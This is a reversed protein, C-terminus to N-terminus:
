YIYRCSVPILSKKLLAAYNYRLFNKESAQLKERLEDKGFMISIPEININNVLISSINTVEVQTLKKRQLVLEFIRRFDRSGLKNEKFLNILVYLSVETYRAPENVAEDMLLQAVQQGNSTLKLKDGNIKTKEYEYAENLVSLNRLDQVKRLFEVYPDPQSIDKSITKEQKVTSPKLIIGNKVLLSDVKKIFANSNVMKIISVIQSFVQTKTKVDYYKSPKTSYVGNNLNISGYKDHWESGYAMSNGGVDAYFITSVKGDTQLSKLQKKKFDEISRKSRLPNFLEVDRASSDITAVNVRSLIDSESFGKQKFYKIVSEFLYRAQSPFSGNTRGTSGYSTYDVIVFERPSKNTRSLDLGIGGLYLSINTPNSKNLSPTSFKIRAVRGVQGKSIYYADVADAIMDMDRGLFGYVGGPFAKELGAILKPLNKEFEKLKYEGIGSSFVEISKPNDIFTEPLPRDKSQIIIKQIANQAFACNGILALSCLLYKIKM